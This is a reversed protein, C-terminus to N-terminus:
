KVDYPCPEEKEGNSCIAKGEMWSSYDCMEANMCCDKKAKQMTRYIAEQEKRDKVENSKKHGYSELIKYYLKEGIRIKEKQMIELFHPKKHQQVNKNKNKEKGQTGEEEKKPVPIPRYDEDITGKYADQGIGYFAAAKKFGGTIAGKLADAYMEARHGGIGVHSMEQSVTIILKVEVTVEYYKKDYKGRTGEEEKLIKYEFSWGKIGCVENLREVVYQYQYGTTDYGKRTIEKPAHEIAEAPLPASLLQYLNNKEKIEKKNENM